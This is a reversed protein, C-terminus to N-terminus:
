PTVTFLNAGFDLTFTENQLVTITSGYDFYAILADTPTTATQNFLVVYRLPGVSGGTATLTTDTLTFTYTGSTQSSTGATVNITDFNATSVTTLHSFQADTAVPAQSAATFAVSIQDSGLNHTGEFAHELFADFRTYTAM